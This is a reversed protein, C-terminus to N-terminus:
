TDFTSKFSTVPTSVNVSADFDCKALKFVLTSLKFTFLSLVTVVSKLLSLLTYHTTSLTTTLFFKTHYITVLTLAISVVIGFM